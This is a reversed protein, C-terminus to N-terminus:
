LIEFKAFKPISQILIIHVGNVVNNVSLFILSSLSIMYRYFNWRCQSPLRFCLSATMQSVWPGSWLGLCWSSTRWERKQNPPSRPPICRATRCCSWDPHRRNDPRRWQYFDERERGGFQENVYTCWSRMCKQYVLIFFNNYLEATVSKKKDKTPPITSIGDYKIVHYAISLNPLRHTNHTVM